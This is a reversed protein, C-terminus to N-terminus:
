STATYAAELMALQSQSLSSLFGKSVDKHSLISRLSHRMANVSSPSADQPPNRAEAMRSSVEKAAENASMAGSVVNGASVSFLMATFLDDIREHKQYQDGGNRLYKSRFNGLNQKYQKSMIAASKFDLFSELSRQISAITSPVTINETLKHISIRSTIANDLMGLASGLENEDVMRILTAIDYVQKPAERLRWEPLGIGGLALTTSKDVLLAGKTLVQAKFPRETGLVHPVYVVETPLRNAFECLFDMKVEGEGGLCSEYHIHHSQLNKVPHPHRPSVSSIQCDPIPDFEDQVARSVDDVSATTMIDVDRSLRQATGEAHLHM